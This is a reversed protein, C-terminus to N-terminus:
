PNADSPAAPPAKKEAIQEISFEVRAAGGAPLAEAKLRAADVGRKVLEAKVLEARQTAAAPTEAAVGIRVSTLEDHGRLLMAVLNLVTAGAGNVVPAGAKSGFTIRERIDLRHGELDLKVIEAGPDPCGDDDKNGNLTEAKEPCKDRADPIGDKDNDLEPCGDTDEFGDPDEAANPCTDFNDPIGDDDNDPEPCGDYDEFGDRDEPEDVCKDRADVVGDGDSDEASSPCGDKPRKGRGDEAANPCPDNLDPIGDKDNDLEPCGDEDQYQDLDEAETPCRDAGDLIGDGDNDPEPCGDSDRFGDHDEAADQCQDDIDAVGDGDRDRFDPAWAVGLFGRFKPAGVGRVLGFGMGGTLSLMSTAHLRLAFDAEVPNSDVYGNFGSRGFLEGIIGLQRHPRVEVAGGYLLQHSVEARFVQSKDRLLAGILAGVRIPKTRYEAVLKVRGTLTKDGQFQSDKGTPATLGAIAALSLEHTRGSEAPESKWSSMIGKGELRLDGIGGSKFSSGAPQGLENFNEGNIYATFPLAAGVQFRDFLGLAFQLEGSVQNRVIDVRTSGLNGAVDATYLTFPRNQFNGMLGLSFQKHLPVTASDVTLFGQPGIAQQFLQVDVSRDLPPATQARAVGSTTLGLGALVLLSRRTFRGTTTTPATLRKGM